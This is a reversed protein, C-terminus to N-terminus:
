PKREMFAARYAAWNQLFDRIGDTLAAGYDTGEPLWHKEVVRGDWDLVDLHARGHASDYRAVPRWREGVWAEYQVTFATVRKRDRDFPSAFSSVM